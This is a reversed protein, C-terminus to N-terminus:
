RPAQPSVKYNEFLYYTLFDQEKENVKLGEGIMEKILAAAAQYSDRICM